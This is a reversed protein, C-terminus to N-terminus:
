IEMTKIKLEKAIEKMQRDLTLLPLNLRQAIELYYADYAYINFRCAIEISKAIDVNYLLVSIGNFM